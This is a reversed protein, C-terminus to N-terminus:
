VLLRWGRDATDAYVADDFDRADEGDITVLPLNRLDRRPGIDAKEVVLPTREVEDMVPGPFEDNFGHAFAVSLVEASLDGPRGFSGSVEGTLQAGERTTGTTLGVKVSDGDGGLETEAGVVTGG